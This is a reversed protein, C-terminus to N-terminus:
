REPAARQDAFRTHVSFNDLYAGIDAGTFEVDDFADRSAPSGTPAAISRRYCDSRFVRAAIAQRAASHEVQGWRVM